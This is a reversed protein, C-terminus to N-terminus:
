ALEDRLLPRLSFREVLPASREQYGFFWGRGHLDCAASWPNQGTGATNKQEL